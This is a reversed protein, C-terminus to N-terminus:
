ADCTKHPLIAGGVTEIAEFGGPEPPVSADIAPLVLLSVVDSVLRTYVQPPHALSTCMLQLQTPMRVLPAGLQRGDKPKEVRSRVRIPISMHAAPMESQASTM